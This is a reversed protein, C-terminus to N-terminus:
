EDGGYRRWFDEIKDTDFCFPSQIESLLERLQNALLKRAEKSLSVDYIIKDLLRSTTSNYDDVGENLIFKIVDMYASFSLDYIDGNGLENFCKYLLLINM